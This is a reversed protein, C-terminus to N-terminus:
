RTLLTYFYFILAIIVKYFDGSVRLWAGTVSAEVGDMSDLTRECVDMAEKAKDLNGLLLDYHAISIRALVYAEAETKTPSQEEDFPKATSPKLSPSLAARPTPLSGLLSQLFSLSEQPDMQQAVRVGIEVLRLQNLKDKFSTIFNNWLGM